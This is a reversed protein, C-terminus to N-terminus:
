YYFMDNYRTPLGERYIHADNSLTLVRPVTVAKDEFELMTVCSHSTDFHTCLMPYPIDLVASLFALSFGQHAFLAVREHKPAQRHYVGKERDHVFGLSALFDDAQKQIFAVGEKCRTQGFYPHDFWREGLARVEPSVMMQVTDDDQFVWHREGKKDIITFYEWSYRDENCWDLTEAGTHLLECTPVATQMARNSTSTYIKDLGYRALRKAVAEAQRHGLPTLSDPEYIPDGHRILFFLM